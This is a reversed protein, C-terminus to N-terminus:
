HEPALDPNRAGCTHCVGDTARPPDHEISWCPCHACPAADMAVTVRVGLLPDSPGDPPASGVGSHQGARRRQREHRRM